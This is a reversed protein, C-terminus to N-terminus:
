GWLTLEMRPSSRRIGVVLWNRGALRGAGPAEVRVVAGLRLTDDYRGLAIRWAWRRVRHLVLLNAAMAQADAVSTLIAPLPAPDLAAPTSTLVSTDLATAYRAPEGYRDRDTAGVSAALDAPTQTTAMVDYAVRQRWRPANISIQEPPTALLRITTTAAQNAPDVVVGGVIRGLEDAGWWGAAARALSDLLGAVTGGQAVVGSAGTPWFAFSAPLWRTSTLGGPGEILKRVIGPLTTTYGGTASAADGSADVTVMGSPLAGLRFVGVAICSQWFGGPLSSAQLAPLTGYNGGFTIPVGRDRVASIGAIEGDSVQYLQTAPDILQPQFNNIWGCARPRPRGVIGAYGGLGGTGDYITCIPVDLDAAAGQLDIRLQSTGYAAGMARLSAVRAFASFPARLPSRAPGRWISVTQGAISWDGGQDDLRGDANHLVIGGISTERRTNEPLVPISTQLDPAAVLRPAFYQHPRDADGPQGIWARDAYRYTPAVISRATDPRALTGPVAAGVQAPMIRRAVTTSAIGGIEILHVTADGPIDSVTISM